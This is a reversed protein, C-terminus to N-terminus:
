KLKGEHRLMRVMSVARAHYRHVAICTSAKGACRCGRIEKNDQQCIERAMLRMTVMDQARIPEVILAPADDLEPPPGLAQTWDPIYGHTTNQLSEVPEYASKKRRFM